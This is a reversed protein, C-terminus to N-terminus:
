MAMYFRGDFLEGTRFVRLIGPESFREAIKRERIFPNRPNEGGALAQEARDLVKIALLKNNAAPEMAQYVVSAAGTGIEKLFVYGDATQGVLGGSNPKMEAM